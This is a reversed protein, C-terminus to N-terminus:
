ASVKDNRWRRWFFSLNDKIWQWRWQRYRATYLELAEQYALDHDLWEAYEPSSRKWQVDHYSCLGSYPRKPEYVMCTPRECIHTVKHDGNNYKPELPRIPKRPKTIKM